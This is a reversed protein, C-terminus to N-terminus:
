LVGFVARSFLATDIVGATKKVTFFVDERRRSVAPTMSKVDEQSPTFVRIRASAVNKHGTLTAISHVRRVYVNARM